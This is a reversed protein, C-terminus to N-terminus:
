LGAQLLRSDPNSTTLGIRKHTCDCFPKNLSEGCGCLAARTDERIVSGDNGVIRVRGRVFLPGAM